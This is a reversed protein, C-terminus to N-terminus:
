VFNPPVVAPKNLSEYWGSDLGLNTAWAGAISMIIVLAPLVLYAPKFIM